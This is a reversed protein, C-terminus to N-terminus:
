PRNYHIYYIWIIHGHFRSYLKTLEQEEMYKFHKAYLVPVSYIDTTEEM